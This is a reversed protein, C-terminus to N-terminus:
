EENEGGFCFEYYACKRCIGKKRPPPMKGRIIREMDKLARELEIEDAPTLEVQVRRRAKPYDIM